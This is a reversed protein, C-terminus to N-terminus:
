TSSRSSRRRARGRRTRGRSSGPRRTCSTPSERRRRRSQRLAGRAGAASQAAGCRKCPTTAGSASAVEEAARGGPPRLVRADPRPWHRSRLLVRVRPHEQTRRAHLLGQARLRPHALAVRAGARVTAHERNTPLESTRSGIHQM